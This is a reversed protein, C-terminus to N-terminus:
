NSIEDPDEQIDQNYAMVRYFGNEDKRYTISNPKEKGGKTTISWLTHDHKAVVLWTTFKRYPTLYEVRICSNGAQSVTPMYNMQLVEDIQKRRPDKKLAKFEMRLKENPDVLEGKCQSCRRAAIDNEIGCQACEKCTWRYSCRLGMPHAASFKSHLCRRGFHGPMDGNETKIRMGELDLFYGQPDIAFGDPNPRAAFENEEGCLPCQCSVPEAENKVVRCKIKPDFLDGDPFFREINDTYDLILCNEKGPYLRLGRGIIQQYLGASETLRLIAIVDAHPFDVGITLTQVNVIYKIKQSKFAAMIDRREGKPMDGYIMGSLQPPLSAMIEKAHQVSAAFFMVGRRDRSQAIVDAVIAATKRGHGHFAKDIDAQDYELRSNLVMGSTDYSEAGTQGILPRTLYGKDILEPAGIKFVMKEFYPDVANIVAKGNHDIRYILGKLMIYPTATLGVVRVLPNVARIKEIINRVTPTMGQCEDVIVVAVKQAIQQITNKVTLPSGFVVPHRLCKAGASTSMISAPNGTALYKERNQTVLDGTPALCLVYKGSREHIRRAIDAIIHSKGAGTAAEVLCPASSKSIWEMVEDSANQQYYRLTM